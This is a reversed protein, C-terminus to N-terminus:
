SGKGTYLYFRDANSSRADTAIYSPIKEVPITLWATHSVIYEGPLNDVSTTVIFRKDYNAVTKYFAAQDKDLVLLVQNDQDAEAQKISNDLLMLDHSFRQALQPSYHYNGMYRAINSSLLGVVIISLPLLGAVRAYPNLPFLRYWERILTAIGMAMMVVILLLTYPIHTPDILVLPLLTVMWFWIVYSRATHKVILFRYFGIIVLMLVGISIVPQIIPNTSATIGLYTFFITKANDLVNPIQDPMGILTMIINPQQTLSYLLPALIILSVISATAIYNPNLSRLQHRIHPHFIVTTAIALNLYIGLPAYLNLALLIFLAVKWVLRPKVRRAVKTAALLLWSAVTLTYITPTGDQSMFVFLPMSAALVAVIMAVNKRYWEKVLFFIGVVAVLGLIISPLKISLSTIGFLEISARQLLNYPLSVVSQPDFENFQLGASAITTAQEANRLGGPVYLASFIILTSIILFGFVYSIIYRHRYLAYETVRRKM